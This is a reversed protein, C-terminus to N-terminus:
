SLSNDEKKREKEDSDSDEFNLDDILKAIANNFKGQNEVLKDLKKLESKLNKDFLENWYGLVRKKLENQKLLLTQSTIM